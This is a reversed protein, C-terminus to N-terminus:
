LPIMSATGLYTEIASDSTELLRMGKVPGKNCGIALRASGPEFTSTACRVLENEFLWNGTTLFHGAITYGMVRIGPIENKPGVIQISEIWEKYSTGPESTKRILYWGVESEDISFTTEHFLRNATPHCFLPHEHLGCDKLPAVRFMAVLIHTLKCTQLELESILRGKPTRIEAMKQLEYDLPYVGYHIIAHEIGFFNDGMIKRARLHAKNPQYDSVVMKRIVERLYGENSLLRDIVEEADDDLGKLIRQIAGTVKGYDLKNAKM